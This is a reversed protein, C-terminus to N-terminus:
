DKPEKYFFARIFNFWFVWTYIPWLILVVVRETNSFGRSADGSLKALRSTTFDMIMLQSVGILLYYTLYDFFM